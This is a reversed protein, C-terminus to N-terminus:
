DVADEKSEAKKERKKIPVAPATKTAFKDKKIGGGGMMLPKKVPSENTGKAKNGGKKKKAKEGEAPDEEPKEEDLDTDEDDEGIDSGMSADEDADNKKSCVKSSASHKKSKSDENLKGRLNALFDSPSLTTATRKQVEGRSIRQKAANVLHDLEILKGKNEQKDIQDVEQVTVCM